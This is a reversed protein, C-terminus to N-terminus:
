ISQSLNKIINFAQQQLPNLKKNKHIILYNTQNAVVDTIKIEKLIKKETYEIVYNKPLFGVGLNSCIATVIAQNNSSDMMPSIKM